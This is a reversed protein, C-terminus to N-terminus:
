VRRGFRKDFQVQDAADVDGDGDYDFATLSAADTQGVASQFASRDSADVTRNGDGDGYLRHFRETVGAAMVVAPLDLRHVRAARVM